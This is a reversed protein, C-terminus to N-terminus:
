HTLTKAQGRLAALQRHYDRKRRGVEKVAVHRLVCKPFSPLFATFVDQGLLTLTLCLFDGKM